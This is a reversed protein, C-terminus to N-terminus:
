CPSVEKVIIKCKTTEARAYMTDVEKLFGRYVFSGDSVEILKGECNEDFATATEFELLGCTAVPSSLTLDSTMSEGDIVIDSNGTSSAFTLELEGAQLGILGANARVCALPSFAGNFVRESIASEIVCTRDPILRGQETVCLLFFVDKDSKTDTSNENRKQVAFEIGYSDARYKSILSLTKDTVSCGTAYTNSFNFEDRGNISEYDKKDYGVTVSSYISGANVSYKHNRTETFRLLPANPVFLESRHVFHVTQRDTFAEELTGDFVTPIMYGGDYSGFYYLDEASLEKIRFITDTRAHGTEPDNYDQWGEFYLYLNSTEPEHYMFRGHGALYIIQDSNVPGNWVLPEYHWPPTEYEGCERLHKFRSQALEGIYHVYGFVTSMWDCFESFSSYLKAGIIGRASEAAMIRTGAIRSDYDSFDIDALVKGDTVKRLLARGVTAPTFVDINAPSGIGLWSFIFQTSLFNVAVASNGASISHSMYVKDGAKLKLPIRGTRRDVYYEDISKKGTSKWAYGRGNYELVWLVGSVLAYLGEKDTIGSPDPLKSPDSYQAGGHIKKLAVNAFTGGNGDKLNGTFPVDIGNRRIRISLLVGNNSNYNTNWEIDYQFEVDIDKEAKLIYSTLDHEQDDRWEVALNVTIESGVNGVWPLEDPKFVVRIAASDDSQEGDTFEYSVNENMPMRDFSLVADRKIDKEVEFEYKTSKNAKILATLSDDVCNIRLVYGEFSITSFDLLCEFRKDFGWSNNMTYVSVSAQASFGKLLYLEMLLEKAHNVFEFQSTFSRVVGGYDERKYSCKVDGWNMLDDERLEYDTDEIHLIFKTRMRDTGSIAIAFIRWFLVLHAALSFLQM